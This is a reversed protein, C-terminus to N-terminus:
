ASHLANDIDKWTLKKLRNDMYAENIINASLEMAWKKYKSVKKPKNFTLFEYIIIQLTKFFIDKPRSQPQKFILKDFESQLIEHWASNFDFRDLNYKKPGEVAGKRLKEMYEIEKKYDEATWNERNPSYKFSIKPRFTNKLIYFAQAKISDIEVERISELEQKSDRQIKIIEEFASKNLSRNKLLTKCAELNQEYQKKLKSANKEDHLMKKAAKSSIIASEFDILTEIIAVMISPSYNEKLLICTKRSLRLIMDKFLIFYGQWLDDAINRFSSNDQEEAQKRFHNILNKTFTTHTIPLNIQFNEIKYSIYAQYVKLPTDYTSKGNIQSNVAKRLTDQLKQTKEIIEQSEKEIRKRM